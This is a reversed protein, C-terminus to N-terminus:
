KRQKEEDDSESKAYLDGSGQKEEDDSESEAYLDGSGSMHATATKASAFLSFTITDEKPYNSACHLFASNFVLIDTNRVPIAYGVSPFLFYFLIEECQKKNAASPCFCSLLTYFIDDDVHVPSWYGTAIAIQTFRGKKGNIFVEHLKADERLKSNINMDKAPIWLLGIKELHAILEKLGEKVEKVEKDRAARENEEEENNPVAYEHVETGNGDKRWGFLLYRLFVGMKRVGRPNDRDQVILARKLIEYYRRWKSMSVRSRQQRGLKYVMLSGDPSKVAVGLKDIEELDLIKYDSVNVSYYWRPLMKPLTKSAGDTDDLIYIPLDSKSLPLEHEDVCEVLVMSDLNEEVRCDHRRKTFLKKFM